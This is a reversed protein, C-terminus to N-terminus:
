TTSQSVEWGKSFIALRSSSCRMIKGRPTNRHSAEETKDTRDQRNTKQRDPIEEVPRTQGAKPISTKPTSQITPSPEGSPNPRAKPITRTKPTAAIPRKRSREGTNKIEAAM